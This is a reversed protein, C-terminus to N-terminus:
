RQHIQTAKTLIESSTINPNKLMYDVMEKVEKDTKLSLFICIIEDEVIERNQFMVKLMYLLSNQYKSLKM